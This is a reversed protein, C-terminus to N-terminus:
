GPLIQFDTVDSLKRPQNGPHLRGSIRVYPKPSKYAAHAVQHHESSLHAKVKVIEEDVYLVLIVEGQMPDEPGFSGRLETVTGIFTQAQAPSQSRLANRVREIRQFYDWQIRVKAREATPAEIRASWDISFDLNVRLDDNMFAVLGDCLNSSLPSAGDPKAAAVFDDLQDAELAGVLGFVADKLGTLARRVFPPRALLPGDDPVADIPCAVKLVFSGSETHRMQAAEVVQQAQVRNLKPHFPQRQVESCAAARLIKETGEIASIAYSLPLGDASDRTPSVGFRLTDAGAELLDAEIAQPPRQESEALREIAIRLAAGYDPRDADIPVIIQRYQLRPNKLVYLRDRVAEPILTWGRAKAYDRVDAPAIQAAHNM